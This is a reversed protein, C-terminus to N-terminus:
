PLGTLAYRATDEVFRKILASDPQPKLDQATGVMGTPVAELLSGAQGTGLVYHRGCNGCFLSDGYEQERRM